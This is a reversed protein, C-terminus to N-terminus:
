LVLAGGKATSVDRLMAGDGGFAYWKGGISRVDSEVMEGNSDLYYWKDGDKHWGTAMTGDDRMMYWKGGVEVWGTVMHGQPGGEREDLYYWHDHWWIWGTRM